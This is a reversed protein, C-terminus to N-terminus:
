ILIHSCHTNPKWLTSILQASNDSPHTCYFYEVGYQEAILNLTQFQTQTHRAVANGTDLITMRAGVLQQIAPKLFPYHTCGLILVDAEAALLPAIYSDLLALTKESNLDNAEVLEVLGHCPQSIVHIHHAYRDKLEALRNSKTTNETALVAIVGTQTLSAAPKIAPEMGIIPIEFNQRLYTAAAATATNCAMVVLVAGQAILFETIKKAREQIIAESKTGYPLYETDAVYILNADPILARIEHLVSLGGIGSDFVGIAPKPTHSQESQM